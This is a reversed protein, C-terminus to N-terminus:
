YRLSAHGYKPHDGIVLLEIVGYGIEDGCCFECDTDAIYSIGKLVEPDTLDLKFGDIYSPGMWLSHVFGRYHNYGGPKLHCRSLPRLILDIKSGDVATLAIRGGQVDLIGEPLKLDHEVMALALPKRDDGWPYFVEGGFVIPTGDWIEKLHYAIGWDTFQACIYNYVFGPPIQPPEVGTEPIGSAARIGWSRDRQAVWTDKDIRHSEGDVKLWGSTRGVQQVRIINETLRGKTHTVQAPEEVPPMTADFAIDYSLGYENEDLVFRIEKMSEIIHYSFPGVRVEDPCSHLERSARVVYQTKGDVVLCGFADMVNRNAYKGFGVSASFKGGIDFTNLWVRETWERASTGVQDFTSVVQHCLLEDHKTFM